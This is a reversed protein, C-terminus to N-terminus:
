LLGLTFSRCWASCAERRGNHLPWRPWRLTDRHGLRSFEANLHRADFMWNHAVPVRGRLWRVLEGAIQEFTPARRVDSARIGHISQPGLDRKPNVLTCWEDTVNGDLDAHLVAVEAIRHHYGPHVGTTETDLVAYGHLGNM